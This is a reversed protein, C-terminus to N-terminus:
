DTFSILDIDFILDSNPCITGTGSTGYALYSPVYLRIKGGAGILRIGIQWGGILRELPFRIAEDSSDFVEDNTQWGEYNVVVDADAAPKDEGGPQIITYRLGSDEDTEPTLNNDLLYQDMSILGKEEFCTEDQCGMALFLMAAFLTIYLKM